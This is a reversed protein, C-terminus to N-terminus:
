LRETMEKANIDIGHILLQRSFEYNSLTYFLANKGRKNKANIDVGMQILYPLMQVRRVCCVILFCPSDNKKVDFCTSFVYELINKLGRSVYYRVACEDVIEGHGILLKVMDVTKAFRICGNAIAGNGM